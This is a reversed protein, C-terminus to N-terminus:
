PFNRVPYFQTPKNTSTTIQTTHPLTNTVGDDFTLTVLTAGTDVLMPIRRGEIEVEAHYQGGSDPKLEVRGFGVPRAQLPPASGVTRTANGMFQALLSPSVIQQSPNGSTQQSLFSGGIAAVITLGAAMKLTEGLM